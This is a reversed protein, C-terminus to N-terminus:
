IFNQYKSTFGASRTQLSRFCSQILLVEAFVLNCLCAERLIAFWAQPFHPEHLVLVEYSCTERLFNRQLHPKFDSRRQYYSVCRIDLKSFHVKVYLYLCEQRYCSCPGSFISCIWLLTRHWIGLSKILNMRGFTCLACLECLEMKRCAAAINIM